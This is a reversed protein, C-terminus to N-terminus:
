KDEIASMARMSETAVDIEMPEQSNSEGNADNNMQLKADDAMAQQMIDAISLSKKSKRATM